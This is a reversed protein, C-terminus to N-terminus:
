HSSRALSKIDGAITAPTEDATFRGRFRGEPDVLAFAADSADGAPPDDLGLAQALRSLQDGDGRVGVFDSSYFTVLDRLAAATDVQPATTLLVAQFQRQLEPRDVLQNHVLVLRTLTKRCADTEGVAGAAVLTWRGALRAPTFPQDYHDRLDFAELVFPETAAILVQPSSPVHFSDGRMRNGLYYGVGVALAAAVVLALHQLPTRPGRKRYM